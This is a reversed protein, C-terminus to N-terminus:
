ALRTMKRPARYNGPRATGLIVAIRIGTNENEAMNGLGRRIHTKGSRGQRVRGPSDDPKVHDGLRGLQTRESLRDGGTDARPREHIDITAQGIRPSFARISGVARRCHGCLAWATYFSNKPSRSSINLRSNPRLRLLTDGVNGEPNLQQASPRPM